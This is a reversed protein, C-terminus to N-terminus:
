RAFKCSEHLPGILAAAHFHAGIGVCRSIRANSAGKTGFANAQAAGFMHEEVGIADGRDALHDEGVAFGATAGREGLQEGRLAAVEGRDEIQRVFHTAAAAGGAPVDRVETDVLGVLTFSPLGNALHVEVTVAPADLGLLARSHIFALSM